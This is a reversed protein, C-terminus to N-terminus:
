IPYEQRFEPDLDEYEVILHRLRMAKRESIPTPRCRCNWDTMAKIFAKHARSGRRAILGDMHRHTDRLREDRTVQIQVYPFAESIGPKALAEEQGEVYATKTVTRLVTESQGRTLEVADKVSTRFTEVSEGREISQELKEKLREILENGRGTTPARKGAATAADIVGQHNLFRSLDGLWRSTDLLRTTDGFRRRVSFPDRADMAVATSFREAEAEPLSQGGERIAVEPAWLSAMGLLRLAHEYREGIERLDLFLEQAERTIQRNTVIENEIARWIRGVDAVTAAELEDYTPLGEPFPTEAGFPDPPAIEFGQRPVVATPQSLGVAPQPTRLAMAQEARVAEALREEFDAPIPVGAGEFVKRLDIARQIPTPTGTSLISRALEVMTSDPLQTLDPYEVALAEEDPGNMGATKNVVYKQFPDALQELIEQILAFLVLQHAAAMAFSGVDSTQITSLEPIGFARLMRIDSENMARDLPGPDSLSSQEEFEVPYNGESDREGILYFVSGKQYQGYADTVIEVMNHEQGSSDTYVAPGRAIGGKLMYKEFFIPRMERIDRRVKWEEYPAGGLRSRGHPETPTADMALWWSERPPLELTEGKVTLDIGDFRGDADRRMTTNKFPLPDLSDIVLVGSKRDYKWAKEYAVRGHRLADMMSHISRNWLRELSETLAQARDSPLGSSEDATVQVPVSMLHSKLVRLAFAVQYDQEMLDALEPWTRPEKRALKELLRSSTARAGVKSGVKLGGSM